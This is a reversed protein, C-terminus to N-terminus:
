HAQCHIKRSRVTCPLRCVLIPCIPQHKVSRQGSTHTVFTTTVQIISASRASMDVSRSRALCAATELIRCLSCCPISDGTGCEIRVTGDDDEVGGCDAAGSRDDETETRVLGIGISALTDLHMNGLM